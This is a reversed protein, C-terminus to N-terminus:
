RRVTGDLVQVPYRDMFVSPIMSLRPDNSRRVKSVTIVWNPEATQANVTAAWLYAPQDDKRILLAPRAGNLEQILPTAIFAGLAGTALDYSRGAAELDFVVQSYAELDPDIVSRAARNMRAALPRLCEAEAADPVGDKCTHYARNMEDRIGDVTDSFRSVETERPALKADLWAGYANNPADELKSRLSRLRSVLGEAAGARHNLERLQQHANLDAGQVAAMQLASAVLADSLIPPVNNSTSAAKAALPAALTLVALVAARTQRM